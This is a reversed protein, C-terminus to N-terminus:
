STDTPHIYASQIDIKALLTGKGLELIHQTAVDVSTYSLTCVDRDIGKNVSASYPSSLDVILRWRDPQHAKPIVGLPSVQIDTSQWQTPGALRSAKREQDVYSDVVKINVTASSMNRSSPRCAARTHGFGIRFGNTLGDLIYDRFSADSHIALERTWSRIRIALRSFSLDTDIQARIEAPRCSELTSLDKMYCYKGNFVNCAASNRVSMNGLSCLSM